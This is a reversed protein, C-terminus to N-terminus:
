SIVHSEYYVCIQAGYGLKFGKTSCYVRSRSNFFRTHGISIECIGIGILFLANMVLVVPLSPRADPAAMVCWTAASPLTAPPPM